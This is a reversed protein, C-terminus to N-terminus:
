KGLEAIRIKKELNHIVTQMQGVENELKLIDPALAKRQQIQAAHFSARMDGLRATANAYNLKAEQLQTFLQLAEKSHFDERTTYVHRNDIVFEFEHAKKEKADVSLRALTQKVRVRENANEENWTASIPRLSALAKIASSELVSEDVPRRSSNPVFTYVCVRDHPQFRDSAFWGVNNEEDIVMLYDNATSNYPYGLNEAKYFMDNESDYRTVYIDYNGLGEETRAAFYLTIGDPMLFPYNSDGQINIGDLPHPQGFSDGDKDERMLTLMATSDQSAIARFRTNGRETTYDTTKAGDSTTIRGVQPQLPYAKLFDKKSVVVSDVILVRDTASLMLSATQVRALATEIDKASQRKRRAALLNKNLQTQAAKIDYQELWQTETRENDVREPYATQASAPFLPAICLVAPLYLKRFSLAYATM